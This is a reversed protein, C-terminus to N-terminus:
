SKKIIYKNHTVTESKQRWVITIMLQGKRIQRKMWVSHKEAQKRRM